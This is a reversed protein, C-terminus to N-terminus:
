PSSSEGRSVLEQEVVELLRQPREKQLQSAAEDQQKGDERAAPRRIAGFL